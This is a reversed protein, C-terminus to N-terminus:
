LDVNIARNDPAVDFTVNISGPPINRGNLKELLAPSCDQRFVRHVGDGDEAILGEGYADDWHTISGSPSKGAGNM